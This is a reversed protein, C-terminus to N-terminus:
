AAYFPLKKRIKRFLRDTGKELTLMGLLIIRRLSSSGQLLSRYATGFGRYSVVWCSCIEDATRRFGPVVCPIWIHAAHEYTTSLSDSRIFIIGVTNLWQRCCLKLNLCERQAKLNVTICSVASAVLNKCRLLSVHKSTKLRDDESSVYM